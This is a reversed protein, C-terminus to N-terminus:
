LNRLVASIILSPSLSNLCSKRRLCSPRYFCSCFPVAIREGKGFVDLESSSTPGILVLVKKKLATAIHFALSDTTIVLQCLDILAAFPKLPLVPTLFVHPLSRAIKQNRAKEEHGGLLLIPKKLAALKKLIERSKQVSLEKSPWRSGAGPNFGILSNPLNHEQAFSLATKRDSEKLFIQPQALASKKFRPLGLLSLWLELFTKQNKSKLADAKKKDPNLLSMQYYPSSDPTYSLRKGQCVVGTIKKLSLKQALFALRRNEELSLVWDFKQHIKQPDTFIKNIAPNGELLPKAAKSTLWCIKEGYAHRLPPILATTRLVDGLAGTKILLIRM